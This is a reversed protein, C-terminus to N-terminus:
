LLAMEAEQSIHIHGAERRQVTRLDVGLKLAVSVQSGRLKRAIQYEKQTM